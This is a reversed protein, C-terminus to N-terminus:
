INHLSIIRQRHHPHYHHNRIRTERECVECQKVRGTQCADWGLRIYGDMWFFLLGATVVVDVVDFAIQDVFLTEAFAFHQYQHVVSPRGVSGGAAVNLVGKLADALVRLGAVDDKHVVRPM